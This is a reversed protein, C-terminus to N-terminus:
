RSTPSTVTRSPDGRDLLRPVTLFSGVSVLAFVVAGALLLLGLSHAAETPPGASSQISGNDPTTEDVEDTQVQASGSTCATM